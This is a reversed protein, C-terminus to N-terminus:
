EEKLILEGGPPLKGTRLFELYEEETYDMISRGLVIERKPEEEEKEVIPYREM